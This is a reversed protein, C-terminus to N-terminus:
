KEGRLAGRRREAQLQQHRRLKHVEIVKKLALETVAKKTKTGTAQMAARWLEEDIDVTLRM